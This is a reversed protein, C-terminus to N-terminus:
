TKPTDFFIGWVERVGPLTPTRCAVVRSGQDAEPHELCRTPLVHDDWPPSAGFGMFIERSSATAMPLSVGSGALPNPLSRYPRQVQVPLSCFPRASVQEQRQATRPVWAALERPVAGRRGPGAPGAPGAGLPLTRPTPAPNGAM